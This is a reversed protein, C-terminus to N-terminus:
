ASAAAGAKPLGGQHGQRRRERVVAARERDPGLVDGADGHEPAHHRRYPVRRGVQGGGGPASERSFACSMTDIGLTKRRQVEACAFFRMDDYTYWCQSKLEDDTCVPANEPPKALAVLDDFSVSKKRAHGNPTSRSNKLIPKVLGNSRLGSLSASRVLRPPPPARLPPPPADSEPKPEFELGDM